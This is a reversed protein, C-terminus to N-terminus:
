GERGPKGFLLQKAMGEGHSGARSVQQSQVM